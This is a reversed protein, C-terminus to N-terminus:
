EEFDWGRLAAIGYGPFEHRSKRADMKWQLPTMSTISKFNRNFTSQSQFGVKSSVEEMSLEERSILRCAMDIRIYNIYDAPKMNAAAEFSRRFHSESLGCAMAMDAIKIEEDYHERVYEFAAKVSQAEKTDLTRQSRERNTRLLEIVFSYLQGNVCEEFYVEEERCEEIINHILGALKPRRDKAYLMGRKNITEIAHEEFFRNM